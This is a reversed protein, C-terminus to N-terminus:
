KEQAKLNQKHKTYKDFVAQQLEKFTCDLARNSFCIPSGYYQHKLELSRKKSRNPERDIYENPNRVKLVIYKYQLSSIDDMIKIDTVDEWVVTGIRHGTSTDNVGEDSIYIATFKEKALFYYSILCFFTTLLSTLGLFFVVVRGEGVILLRSLYLLLIGGLASLVTTLFLGRKKNKGLKFTIVSLTDM